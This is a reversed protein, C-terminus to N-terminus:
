TKQSPIALKLGADIFAQYLPNDSKGRSVNLHGDGGRYDDPGLEHTQSKRFYPLCDAYSWGEAGEKEWRDYDYAHGRIYVMANLSSSGGWVRGRPQYIRRNDMFEQEETEYYWNYKNDCLNYILAAPMHIKWTWDKPGAELLLVKNKLTQRCVTQLFVAQLDQEVFSTTM